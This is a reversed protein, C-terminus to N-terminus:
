LQEQQPHSHFTSGTLAKRRLLPSTRYRDEGYLATMNELVTVIHAAGIEDAWALPGRPYNVGLRMALDCDEATCVGQQVADAAENALMAVTRMVILGPTDDMHSIAIGAAQLLGAANRLASPDAQDAISIALRPTTTYDLALDILVLNPHELDFARQTATRGDTVFLLTGNVEAICGDPRQGTHEMIAARQLRQKLAITAPSDGFLRIREPAPIAPLARPTLEPANPAYSYFGRGAKRGVFGADVLDRQRLSPTFRPDNFFAEFVSRTVAFNVDNGILDMLQFPGMRFGGADRLVADITVCDAAGENLLRLAEAYFPRAVRNVIFGPTSRAVVATKGWAEATARLQQTVRPATAMGAVIEVLPMLPAPNFFHVGAVREPAHLGAAIATISLSSTNTALIAERRVIQELSSFLDRKASLDEVIAEVILGCSALNELSDVPRLAAKAEQAQEPALRGKALLKDINATTDQVAKHAAGPRTDFLRVRHGATAAVQAIGAGMTGAGVIGIEVTRPLADTHTSVVM